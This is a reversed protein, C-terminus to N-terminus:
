DRHRKQRKSARSSERRRGRSHDRSRDRSWNDSQGALHDRRSKRAKDESEKGSELTLERIAEETSAAESRPSLPRERGMSHNWLEAFRKDMMPKFDERLEAMKREVFELCGSHVGSAELVREGGKKDPILMRNYVSDQAVNKVTREGSSTSVVVVTTGDESARKKGSNSREGGESRHRHYRDANDRFWTLDDHNIGRKDLKSFVSDQLLFEFRSTLLKSVYRMRDENQGFRRTLQGFLNCSELVMQRPNDCLENVFEEGTKAKDDNNILCKLAVM